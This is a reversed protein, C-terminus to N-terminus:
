RVFTKQHAILVCCHVPKIISDDAGEDLLKTVVSPTNLTSLFLIPINGYCRISRCLQLGEM